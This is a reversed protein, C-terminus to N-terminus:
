QVRSLDLRGVVIEEGDPRKAEALFGSGDPTWEKPAVIASQGQFPLDLLTGVGMCLVGWRKVEQVRTFLSEKWGTRTGATWVEPNASVQLIVQAGQEALRRALPAHWGDACVLVGITAQPMRFVRLDEAAGPSLDLGDAKELDILNVKRALLHMKGDPAFLCCVNFVDAPREPFVLPVSGAVLHVKHRRALAAFTEEYVKRIADAKVLWLARTPSVKHKAALAGVEAAHRLILSAAGDRLTRAAGLAEVDGLAVLPTGIDEPLVVLDPRRAMAAEVRQAMHGAFEEPTRYFRLETQAVAVTLVGPTPTDGPAAVAPALSLALACVCLVRLPAPMRRRAMDAAARAVPAPAPAADGAAGGRPVSLDLATAM